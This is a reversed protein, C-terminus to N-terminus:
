PGPPSITDLGVVVLKAGETSESVPSVPTVTVWSVWTVHGFEDVHTAMPLPTTFPVAPGM